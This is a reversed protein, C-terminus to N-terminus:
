PKSPCPLVSPFMKSEVEVDFEIPENLLKYNVYSGFRVRFRTSEFGVCNAGERRAGTGSVLSRMEVVVRDSVSEPFQEWRLYDTYLKAATIEWDQSASTGKTFAVLPKKPDPGAKGIEVSLITRYQRPQGLAVTSLCLTATLMIMACVRKPRVWHWQRFSM